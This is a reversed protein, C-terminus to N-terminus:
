LGPMWREIWAQLALVTWLEYALERRGRQHLDWARRIPVPDLVGQRRLRGEDLLDEGWPRLAGRLM